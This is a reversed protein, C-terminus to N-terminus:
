KYRADIEAVAVQVLQQVLTDLGAGGKVESRVGLFAKSSAGIEMKQEQYGTGVQETTNADMIRYRMGVLWVGASDESAISGAVADGVEGTKQNDGALAKFIKAATAGDVSTKAAAVQEAKLIDFGVVWRTAKLKGRQLIRQAANPDGLNYALEFEHELAKLNSRELVHFNARALELEAFDAINNPQYRQVFSGNSSKIAGPIVVIQPGEKAVNAYQVPKYAARGASENAARSAASAGAPSAGTASGAGNLKAMDVGACGSLVGIVLAASILRTSSLDTWIRYAM